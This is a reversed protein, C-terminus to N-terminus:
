GAGTSVMSDDASPGYIAPVKGGAMRVYVALQGRHHISDLLMLWMLEIVPLELKLGPPGFPTKRSIKEEPASKVTDVVDRASREYAGLAETWTGPPAAGPATDGRLTRLMVDNERWFTQALRLATSSREHPKFEANSEPYARLVRLTRPTEKEYLELWMQRRAAPSIEPTSDAM